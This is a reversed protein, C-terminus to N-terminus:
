DKGHTKAKEAREALFQEEKESDVYSGVVPDFERTRWYTKAAENRLIDENVQMKEDHHELYRNTVVNYDRQSPM